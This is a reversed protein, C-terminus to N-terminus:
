IEHNDLEPINKNYRLALMIRKKGVNNKVNHPINTRVVHPSNIIQCHLNKPDEIKLGAYKIGSPLTIDEEYYNGSYWSMSGGECNLLPINLSTYIGYKTQADIHIPQEEFPMLFFIIGSVLKISSDLFWKITDEKLIITLEELDNKNLSVPFSDEKNEFVSSYQNFIYETINCQSEIVISKCYYIPTLM